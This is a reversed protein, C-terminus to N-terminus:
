IGLELYSKELKKLAIAYAAMRYNNFKYKAKCELIEQFAMRM